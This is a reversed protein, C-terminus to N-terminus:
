SAWREVNQWADLRTSAKTRGDRSALSVKKLEGIFEPQELLDTIVPLAKGLPMKDWGATRIPTKGKTDARLSSSGSASPHRASDADAKAQPVNPGASSVSAEAGTHQEFSGNRSIPGSGSPRHLGGEETESGGSRAPAISPRQLAGIPGFPEILTRDKAKVQSPGAEANQASRSGHSATNDSSPSSGKGLSRLLDNLQGASPIQSAGTGGQGAHAPHAAHHPHPRAHATM